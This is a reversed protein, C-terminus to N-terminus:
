LFLEPRAMWCIGFRGDDDRELCIVSGQQFLATPEDQEKGLLLSVLRSMFPMHGVLMIDDSFERIQTAFTAVDSMPEMGSMPTIQGNGISNALILATQEARKKGSHYIKNVRVSCAEMFTAMSLVDQEGEDSLPCEPDEEKSLSNGHQVLYLRMNIAGKTKANTVGACAPAWIGSYKGIERTYPNGGERSHCLSIYSTIYCM